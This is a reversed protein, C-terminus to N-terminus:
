KPFYNEKGKKKPTVPLTARRCCFYSLIHFMFYSFEFYTFFNKLIPLPRINQVSVRPLKHFCKICMIFLQNFFFFLLLM